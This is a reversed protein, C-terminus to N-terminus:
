TPSPEVAALVHAMVREVSEIARASEDDSARTGRHVAGNRVEVSRHYAKWGDAASIDDGGTLSAWLTRTRKDMFTRGPLVGLVADDLGDDTGVRQSLLSTFAQETAIEFAMHAVVVAVAHQNAERQERALKLLTKYYPPQNFLFIM